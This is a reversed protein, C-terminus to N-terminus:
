DNVKIFLVTTKTVKRLAMELTKIETRKRRYQGPVHTGFDDLDNERLVEDTIELSELKSILVTATRHDIFLPREDRTAFKEKAHEYAGNDLTIGHNALLNQLDSFLLFAREKLASVLTTKSDLFSDYTDIIEKQESGWPWKKKKTIIVKYEAADILNEIEYMSVLRFEASAYQSNRSIM